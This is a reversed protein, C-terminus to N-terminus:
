RQSIIAVVSQQRQTIGFVSPWFVTVTIKKLGIDSMSSQFNQDVLEVVTTRSFAYLPSSSDSTVKVEDEITGTNIESYSVSNLEEIKAQAVQQATSALERDRGAEIGKPFAQLIGLLGVTLIGTTLLIEILTVGKNSKLSTQSM